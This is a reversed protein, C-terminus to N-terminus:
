ENKKAEFGGGAALRPVGGLDGHHQALVPEAGDAIVPAPNGGPAAM